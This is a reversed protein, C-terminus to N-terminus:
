FDKVEEKTCDLVDNVNTEDLEQGEISTSSSSQSTPDTTVEESASDVFEPSWPETMRELMEDLHEPISCQVRLSGVILNDRDM